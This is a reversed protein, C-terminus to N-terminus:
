RSAQKAALASFAKVYSVYGSRFDTATLSYAVDPSVGNDEVFDADVYNGDRKFATFLSRTIRFNGNSNSLVAAPEVNGGLAATTEGFILGQKSAKVLMPLLDACSASLEDALVIFPKKWGRADPALQEPGDLFPLVQTLVKNQDYASEVVDARRQLVNGRQQQTEDTSGQLQLQLTRLTEIWRRDAHYRFGVNPSPARILSSVLGTCFAEDGGPNHTQDVVLVDAQEQFESLLAQYYELANGVGGEFGPSYSPVRTLLIRKGDFVYLASFARYCEFNNDSCRPTNFEMLAKDSPRVLVPHITDVVAPTVFIPELAGFKDAEFRKSTLNKIWDNALMQTGKAATSQVTSRKPLLSTATWPTAATYRTGDARKLELTAIANPKPLLKEDLYWVRATLYSAGLVRATKPNALSIYSDFARLLASPTQGDISLLEDGATIGGSQTLQPSASTVVFTNGFPTVLLPIAYGFSSDSNIGVDLGLHGDKFRGLFRQMAGIFDADTRGRRIENQTQRVAQTFSFQYRTQKREIPGYFGLFASEIQQFDALAERRKLERLPSEQSSTNDVVAEATPLGIPECGSFVALVTTTICFITRLPTANTQMTTEKTLSVNTV